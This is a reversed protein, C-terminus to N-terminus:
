TPSLLTVFRPEASHANFDTRLEATSSSLDVIQAQPHSPEKSGCAILLLLVALTRTVGILM